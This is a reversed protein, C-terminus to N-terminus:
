VRDSRTSTQRIVDGGFAVVFQIGAWLAPWLMVVVIAQAGGPLRVFDAPSM